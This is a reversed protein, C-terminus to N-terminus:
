IMPELYGVALTADPNYFKVTRRVQREEESRVQLCRQCTAGPRNGRGLLAGQPATQRSRRDLMLGYNHVEIDADIILRFNHIHLSPLPEMKEKTMHAM